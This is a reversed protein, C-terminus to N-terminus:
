RALVSACWILTPVTIIGTLLLYTKASDYYEYSVDKPLNNIAKLNENDCLKNYLDSKNTECDCIEVNYLGANKIISYQVTYKVTNENEDKFTYTDKYVIDNALATGYGGYSSYSVSSVFLNNQTNSKKGTFEFGLDKYDNQTKELQTQLSNASICYSTSTCSTLMMNLMVTFLVAITLFIKKM